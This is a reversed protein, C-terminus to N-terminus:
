GARWDILGAVASHDQWKPQHKVYLELYIKRGLLVELEERALRGIKKLQHGRTGILIAKQGERDVFITAQIRVLRNSDEFKDIVVATAYPVEQRTESFIKERIIEGAWFREPQDTLYDAPFYRPGQPLHEFLSQELRDLNERRLASIPIFEAFAHEQRYADILPLLREKAILDIKNLVLFSKRGCCKVAEVALRDEEGRPKSVDVVLLVLDVGSIAETVAAMMQHHLRSSPYHIGPTDIFVFQANERTLVGQVRVRTTQPKVSVAALKVGVLANLLTSKGTNPKGALVIFGSKFGPISSFSASECAAM